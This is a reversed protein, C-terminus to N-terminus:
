SYKYYIKSIVWNNLIETYATRIFTCSNFSKIM